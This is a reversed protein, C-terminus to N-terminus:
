PKYVKSSCEGKSIENCCMFNNNKRKGKNLTGEAEHYGSDLCTSVILSLLTYKDPKHAPGRALVFGIHAKALAPFELLLQRQILSGSSEM